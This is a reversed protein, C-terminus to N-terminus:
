SDPNLSDDLERLKEESREIRVELGRIKSTLDTLLQDLFNRDSNDLSDFIDVLRQYEEDDLFDKTLRDM